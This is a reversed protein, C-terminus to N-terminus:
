AGPAVTKLFFDPTTKLTVKVQQGDALQTTPAFTVSWPGDDAGAAATLPSSIPSVASGMVLLVVLVLLGRLRRSM